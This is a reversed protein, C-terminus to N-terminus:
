TFGEAQYVYANQSMKLNSMKLNTQTGLFKKLKIIKPYKQYMNKTLFHLNCFVCTISNQSISINETQHINDKDYM